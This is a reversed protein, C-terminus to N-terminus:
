LAAPSTLPAAVDAGYSSQLGIAEYRRYWRRARM